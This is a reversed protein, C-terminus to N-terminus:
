PWAFSVADDNYYRLEAELDADLMRGLKIDHPKEKTVKSLAPKIKEAIAKAAGTRRLYTGALAPGFPATDGLSTGGRGRNRGQQSSAATVDIKNGPKEDRGQGGRHGQDGGVRRGWHDTVKARSRSAAGPLQRALNRIRGQM